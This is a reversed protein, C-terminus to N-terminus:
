AHTASRAVPLSDTELWESRLGKGLYTKIAFVLRGTPKLEQIYGRKRNWEWRSEETTLPRRVQKLKGRLQFEIKEGLLEVRLGRNETETITAGHRELQKFIADLIRHRRLEDADFPRAGFTTKRWPDRELRTEEVRRDRDAHWNAIIPHPKSRRSSVKIEESEVKELNAKLASAVKSRTQPAPQIIVEQPTASEAEPLPTKIVELGRAVRTWHGQAPYPVNLKHCIKSLGNGTIGYRKGLHILPTEWFPKTCSPV